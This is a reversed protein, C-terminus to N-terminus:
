KAGKANATVYALVNAKEAADLKAKSAMDDLIPGWESVTYNDVKKLGHCRGCKNNYTDMGAAVEKTVAKPAEAVVPAPAPAPAATTPTNKKACASLVLGAFLVFSLKKMNSSLHKFM